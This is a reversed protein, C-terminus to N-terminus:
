ADWSDILLLDSRVVGVTKLVGRGRPPPFARTNSKLKMQKSNSFWLFREDESLPRWQFFCYMYNNYNEKTKKTETKREKEKKRKSVVTVLSSLFRLCIIEYAIDSTMPGDYYM